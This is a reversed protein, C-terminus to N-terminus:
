MGDGVAGKSQTSAHAGQPQDWPQSLPHLVYKATIWSFVEGVVNDRAVKSKIDALARERLPQIDLKVGPMLTVDSAILHIDWWALWFTYARQRVPPLHLPYQRKVSTIGAPTSVRRSSRLSRFKTRAVISSYPDGASPHTLERLTFVLHLTSARRSPDLSLFLVIKHKMRRRVGRNMRPARHTEGQPVAVSKRPLRPPVPLM